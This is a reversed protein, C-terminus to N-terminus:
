LPRCENGGYKLGPSLFFIQMSHTSLRLSRRNSIEPDCFAGHISKTNGFNRSQTKTIHHCTNNLGHFLDESCEQNKVARTIQGKKKEWGLYYLDRFAM